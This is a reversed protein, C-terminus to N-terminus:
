KTTRRKFWIFGHDPCEAVGIGDALAYHQCQHNKCLPCGEVTAGLVRAQGGGLEPPLRVWDPRPRGVLVETPDTTSPAVVAGPRRDYWRVSM